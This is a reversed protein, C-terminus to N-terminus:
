WSSFGDEWDLVRKQESVSFATSISNLAENGVHNTKNQISPNQDTFFVEGADQDLVLEEEKGRCCCFVNRICSM